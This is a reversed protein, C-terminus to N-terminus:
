CESSDSDLDDSSVNGECVLVQPSRPDCSSNPSNNSVFKRKKSQSPSASRSRKKKKSYKRPSNSRQKKRKPPSKLNKEASSNKSPSRSRLNRKSPSCKCLKLSKLYSTNETAPSESACESSKRSVAKSKSKKPDSKTTTTIPPYRTENSTIFHPPSHSNRQTNRNSRRKSNSSSECWEANFVKQIRELKAKLCPAPTFQLTAAPCVLAYLNKKKIVFRNSEASCLANEIQSAIDGSLNYTKDMFKTIDDLGAGSCYKKHSQLQKLSSLVKYFFSTGPRCIGKTCPCKTM